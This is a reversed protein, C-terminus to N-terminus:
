APRTRRSAVLSSYVSEYSDLWPDVAFDTDLRRRAREARARADGRDSLSTAIAGALAAVDEPTVLWAEDERLLDPLGGVRYAVIPTGAAMAELVVIPLGESRSSLVFTDFATFLRGADSVDLCFRVQAELGLAAARQRLRDEEEGYGIM